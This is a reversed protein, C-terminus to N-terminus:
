EGLVVRLGVGAALAREYALAAAAVDQLATGTSDFVTIEGADRRGPRRGAVVEGLEAHVGARTVVGAALAHHLEGITAAQELVDAVVLAGALLAPELEQKEPSDAGVAAVFTGPRVDACGLFWATAPTCTVVVDSERAAPGPASVATARIGLEAQVEGAYATARARYVDWALVRRISRVRALARLQVRGQTGCGCITVTAADPRALYKAAVATAAATRRATIEISDMVALVQGTRGDGLTVTGQITPLGHRERNRPFNGNTKVAVYPRALDLRATKIHFGGDPAPVGLVGPAPLLGRGFAAFAREVAEICADLDLLAAVDRRTLILTDHDPAPRKDPM